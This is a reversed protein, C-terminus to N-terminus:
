LRCELGFKRLGPRDHGPEPDPDAAAPVTSSPHLAAVGLLGGVGQAGGGGLDARVCPRQGGPQVIHEAQREGLRGLHQALQTHRDGGPRQRRSRLRRPNASTGVVWAMVRATPVEDITTMSSVPQRIPPHPAQSHTAVV